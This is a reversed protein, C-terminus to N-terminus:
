SIYFRLYILKPLNLGSEWNKQVNITYKVFTIDIDTGKLLRWFESFEM